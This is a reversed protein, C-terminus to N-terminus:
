NIFNILLRILLNIYNKFISLFKSVDELKCSLVVLMRMITTFNVVQIHM